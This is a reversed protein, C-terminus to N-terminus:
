IGSKDGALTHRQALNLVEIETGENAFLPIPVAGGESPSTLVLYCSM